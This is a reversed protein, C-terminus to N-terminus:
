LIGYGGALSDLFIPFEPPCLTLLMFLAIIGVLIIIVDNASIGKSHRYVHLGMLQGFLVALLLILINIILCDEIGFAGTYFYFLLPITIIATVLSVLAATFWKNKDITQKNRTELYYIIWWGIIPWVVLKIHEWVSENVPAILGVIPFKGCLDYLYHFIVGIVFLCPIGLLIWKEPTLSKKLKM